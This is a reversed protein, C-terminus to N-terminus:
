PLPTLPSPDAFVGSGLTLKSSLALIPYPLM